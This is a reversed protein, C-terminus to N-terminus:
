PLDERIRTGDEGEIGVDVPLAKTGDLGDCSLTYRTSTTPRVEVGGTTQKNVVNVPVVTSNKDNTVSCRTVYNCSWSLTASDPPTVTAPNVSPTSCIPYEWVTATVTKPDSPIGTPGTCVMTYSYTKGNGPTEDGRALRGLALSNNANNTASQNLSGTLRCSVATGGISWSLTADTNPVQLMASTASGNIRLDVIPKASKVIITKVRNLTVSEGGPLGTFVRKLALQVPTGTIANFGASKNADVTCRTTNEDVTVCSVVGGNDSTWTDAYPFDYERLAGDNESRYSVKASRREFNMPPEDSSTFAETVSATNMKTITFEDGGKAEGPGYYDLGFSSTVVVTGGGGGYSELVKEESPRDEFLGPTAQAQAVEDHSLWQAALMGTAGAFAFVIIMATPMVAKEKKWYWLAGGAGGAIVIIAVAIMYWNMEGEQQDAGMQPNSVTVQKSLLLKGDRDYVETRVAISAPMSKTAPARYLKPEMAPYLIGTQEVANIAAGTQPDVITVVVRGEPAPTIVTNDASLAATNGVCSVAQAEGDVMIVNSYFVDPTVGPVSFRIKGIASQGNAEYKVRLMYSGAQLQAPVMFEVVKQEGARLNIKMSEGAIRERTEDWHYMDITAMGSVSVVGPNVVPVTMTAPLEQNTVRIPPKFPSINREGLMADGEKVFAIEPNKNGQQDVRFGFVAGPNDQNFPLGAIHFGNELIMVSGQYFGNPLWAPVSFSLENTADQGHPYNLGGGVTMETLLVTEALGPTYKRIQLLATANTVSTRSHDNHVNLTLKASEGPAYTDKDSAASMKLAMYPYFDFCPLDERAPVAQASAVFPMCYAAMITATVALSVFRKTMKKNM